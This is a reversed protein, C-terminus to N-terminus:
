VKKSEGFAMRTWKVVYVVGSGTTALATVVVMIDLYRDVELTFGAAALFAGATIVQAVTNVKGIMLPEIDLAGMRLRYAAAGAVIVLDRVVAVVVFWLPIKGIIALSVFVAVLLAKDALPDLFAGLRSRADLTKALFGDIGDSIGAAVFVWFAFLFNGDFILWVAYPVAVIRALSIANPLHRLGDNRV